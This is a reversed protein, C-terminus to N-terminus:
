MNWFGIRPEIRPVLRSVRRRVLVCVPSGHNCTHESDHLYRWRSSSVKTWRKAPM